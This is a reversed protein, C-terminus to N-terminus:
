VATASNVKEASIGSSSGLAQSLSEEDSTTQAAANFQIRHSFVQTTDTKDSWSTGTAVRFIILQPALIASVNYLIDFITGSKWATKNADSLPLTIITGIGFIALPAASEVLIAIIGLYLKHHSDPLATRLRKHARFLRLSILLTIIINLGITLSIDVTNLKDDWFDLPVYTRLNVGIGALYLCAPLVVVWPYGVWVIYCRYVLVADAIWISIDWLLSATSLLQSQYTDAIEMGAEVNEPGPVVQFLVTYTYVGEIIATTSSLLLILLSVAVYPLRKKRTALPAELYLSVMYFWMFVQIASVNLDM